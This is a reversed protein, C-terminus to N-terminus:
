DAYGPAIWIVRNTDTAGDFFARPPPAWLLQSTPMGTAGSVETIFSPAVSALTRGPHMTERYWHLYFWDEDVEIQDQIRARFPAEYYELMESLELATRTTIAGRYSMRIPHWLLGAFPMTYRSDCEALIGFAMSAAMGTVFCRFTVGQSQYLQMATVFKLGSDVYGGPSDLVLTVAKTKTTIEAFRALAADVSDDDVVGTFVVTNAPVLAITSAPAPLAWLAAAATMVYALYKSM